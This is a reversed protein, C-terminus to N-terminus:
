DGPKFRRNSGFKAYRNAACTYPQMSAIMTWWMVIQYACNIWTGTDRVRKTRRANKDKQLICHDESANDTEEVKERISDLQTQNKFCLSFKNKLKPSKNAKLHQRLLRRDREERTEQRGINPGTITTLRFPQIYIGPELTPISNGGEEWSEDPTTTIVGNDKSIPYQTDLGQELNSTISEGEYWSEEATTTTAETTARM